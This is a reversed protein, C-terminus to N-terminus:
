HNFVFYYVIEVKHRRQTSHYGLLCTTDIWHRNLTPGGGPASAWGYLLMTTLDRTPQSVRPGFCPANVGQAPNVATLTSSAKYFHDLM